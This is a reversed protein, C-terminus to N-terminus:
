LKIFVGLAYSNGEVLSKCLFTNQDHFSLTTCKSYELPTSILVCFPLNKSRLVKEALRSCNWCHCLHLCPTIGPCQSYTPRNYQPAIPWGSWEDGKAEMIRSQYIVREAARSLLRGQRNMLEWNLAKCKYGISLGVTATNSVGCIYESNKKLLYWSGTLLHVSVWQYRCM